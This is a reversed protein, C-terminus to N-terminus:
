ADGGLFPRQRARADDYVERAARVAPMESTEAVPVEWWSDYSGVGALPDCEVVIVTTREATRAARLAAALEDRDHARVAIAGLSAANAVLDPKERYATGFGESGLSRSLGGISAFGHNDILVVTLRVDEQISTAIESSMMLWSGDGVMVLVERDPDALKVGLGGAVEYGMTSYGYELHYGHADRTRWLKHLDGPLSGAACVVVDTPQSTENVVGIVEAQTLGSGGDGAYLRTVEADWDRNAAAVREALEQAMRHGALKGALAELGARADGVLPLAGLKHADMGTVNLSVVRLGAHQFATRSATTFDSFRTGVGIVLDADRAYLNAARTGTAGAAGLASPHDYPLAGKGAQTECVPIGTAEVLSRLAGEAQSYRVGGGAVILPQRAARVLEAAAHLAEADPVPRTIRWVRPAFLEEPYDFAEAQVDQPLAITVAGTEAQDTLVRMAELLSAPLQEPRHVRDFFRSVAALADNVSAGPHGPLELQQLAPDVRRSAFLDGPLLLVPLRNITAAAAGTVMNTAGPGISSTCAYIALRNRQKAFAAATHVMAQENRPLLYRLGGHQQLAQGIGAVNGHGFIGLVGAVLPAQVGDREVRQEALFAVLAQAVTLRRSSV